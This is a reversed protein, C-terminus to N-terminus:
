PAAVRQGSSATGPFTQRKLHLRSRIRKSRSFGAFLTDPQLALEQIAVSPASPKADQACILPGSLVAGLIGIALFRGNTM